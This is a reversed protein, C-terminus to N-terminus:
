PLLLARYFRRSYGSANPDNFQFGGGFATNTVVPVWATLNTSADIRYARGTIGSLYFRFQGTFLQAQGLTPPANSFPQAVFNVTQGTSGTITTSQNPADQFGRAPLDGNNIGVVWAGPFVSMNYFGNTDTTGSTVYMAGNNTINGFLRVGSLPNGHNDTVSGSIQATGSEAVLTINNIDAGNTVSFTLNPGILNASQASSSELGLSWNGGYVGIDFSGDNGTQPYISNAGSSNTTVPQAVLTFNGLANSFNDILRGRLHATVRLLIFNQAIAQGNNITFNTGQGIFGAATLSTNDPSVQLSTSGLAGVWYNGSADSAGASDFLNGQDQAQIRLGPVSNSQTDEVHGYVLATAGAMQFNVNSVNGVTTDANLSNNLRVYGLLPGSESGLKLKWKSPTAGLTYNGNTDTFGIAFLGNTDQAQFFLGPLGAGSTSDSIKGSITRTGLINTLNLSAFSNPAVTVGGFNQDAVYGPNVPLAGYSNTPCFITYNGGGDVLAGFGGNGNQIVLVVVTNTLPLGTSASFVRGQVGQPYVKQSVVLPQTLTFSNAADTVRVLYTGAIHNLTDSAGPYPVNVTMLGNTSGDDDGPVNRNRVGGIFSAQGDTVTYSEIMIDSSDIIGNGNVDLFREVRVTEGVTLGSISLTINGVYDNTVTSPTINLSAAVTSAALSSIYIGIALWITRFLSMKM